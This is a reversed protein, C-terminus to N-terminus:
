LSTPAQRRAFRAFEDIQPKSIILWMIYILHRQM